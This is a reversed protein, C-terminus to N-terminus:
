FDMDALFDMMGGTVINALEENPEVKWQSDVKVLEFDVTGTIQLADSANVMDRVLNEMMTDLQEDSLGAFAYGIMETMLKSMVVGMDVTTIDVSVHAVDGDISESINGYSLKSFIEAVFVPLESDDENFIDEDQNVTYQQAKEFDSNKIADLFSAVVKEPAPGSQTASGSCGALMFVALLAISMIVCFIKKMLNDGKM